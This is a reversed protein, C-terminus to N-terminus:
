SRQNLPPCSSFSSSQWFDLYQQAVKIHDHYREIYIRSEHSLNPIESKHEVLWSLAEYVSEENPQVNLIPRLDSCGLIEYNEPEGGGVVILGQAMAQLANMAPTYAYLQDLLVDSSLLLQKYQEFPVNEVQVIEVADPYQEKLRLLARLMIDTGKYSNRARQIGIFFRVKRNPAFVKKEFDPILTAADADIPFPIFRLKHEWEKKYATYYEYLGAVIGDCDRAILHNLTGKSGKLWDAIWIRNDERERVKIGINFDSYRFTTCDLGAKVWYYDMGFAGLFVRRNHRRLYRYFPAIREGKLSIFVPNILQVVDFGRFHRFCRLLHLFYCLSVGRRTSARRLDVDRDYNKWGDGDSAVVVEHGLERLGKTLTAHVNSYEGILLIKM